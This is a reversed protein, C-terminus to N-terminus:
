HHIKYVNETFKLKIQFNHINNFSHFKIGKSITCTNWYLIMINIAANLYLSYQRSLKTELFKKGM